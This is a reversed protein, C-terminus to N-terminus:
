EGPEDIIKPNKLLQKMRWDRAAKSKFNKEFITWVIYGQKSHCTKICPKPWDSIRLITFGAKLLKNNTQMSM